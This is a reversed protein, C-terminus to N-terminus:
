NENHQLFKQDIQKNWGISLSLWINILRNV